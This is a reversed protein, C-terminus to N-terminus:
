NPPVPDSKTQSAPFAAQLQNRLEYMIATNRTIFRFEVFFTLLNFIFAAIIVWFHTSVSLAGTHAGGGLVVGAGLSLAAILAFPFVKWKFRWTPARLERGIGTQIIAEKLWIGTGLFYTIVVCHVFINFVTTLFGLMFHYKFMDDHMGYLYGLVGVTVMLIIDAIALGAFIVAM